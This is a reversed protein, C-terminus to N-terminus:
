GKSRLVALRANAEAVARELHVLRNKRMDDDALDAVAAAEVELALSAGFHNHEAELLRQNIVQQRQEATLHAYEDKKPM